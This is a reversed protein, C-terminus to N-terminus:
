SDGEPPIHMRDKFESFVWSDLPVGLQELAKNVATNLPDMESHIDAGLTIGKSPVTTEPSERGLIPQLDAYEQDFTALVGACTLIACDLLLIQEAHHGPAREKEILTWPQVIEGKKTLYPHALASNRFQGLGPWVRIRDVYPMVAKRVQRVRRDEPELRGFADWIELFKSVLILGHNMLIFFIDDNLIETIDGQVRNLGRRFTQCEHAVM